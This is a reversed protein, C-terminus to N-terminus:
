CAAHDCADFGCGCTFLSGCAHECVCAHIVADDCDRGDDNGTDHADNCTDIAHEGCADDGESAHDIEAAVEGAKEEGEGAGDSGDAAACGGGTHGANARGGESCGGHGRM